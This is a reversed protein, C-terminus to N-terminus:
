TNVFNDNDDFGFDYTIGQGSDPKSNQKKMLDEIRSLYLLADADYKQAAEEPEESQNRKEHHNKNLSYSYLIGEPFINVSLRRMGWALAKYVMAYRICRCLEMDDPEIKSKLLELKESGIRPIIDFDESQMLGPVLKEFLYRSDLPFVDNFDFTSKVLTKHAKKYNESNKWEESNEDLYDLLNDLAKYFRRELAADNNKIQWEFASKEHEDIRAKRGDNTHALDNVVAHNSYAHIAVPYRVAYLLAEEEEGPSAKKYVELIGAYVERSILKQMELSSSILDSKLNEFKMDADIFGLLEKLEETGNSEKNFLLKIM